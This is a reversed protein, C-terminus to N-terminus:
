TGPTAGHCESFPRGSLCPCPDSARPVPPPLDRKPDHAPDFPGLRERGDFRFRAYDGAADVYHLFVQAWWAGEFRERWHVVQAGKYVMMDGPGLVVRQAAGDREVLIPWPATADYGLTLTTSIECSPRDLHRPLTAGREYIRLFSYCPHLVVGAVKEVVPQLSVLLTEGLADAYRGRAHYEPEPRFARPDSALMLAYQAALQAPGPRLAQPVLQYRDKAFAASM